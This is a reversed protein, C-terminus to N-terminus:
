SVSGVDRDTELKPDRGARRHAEDILIKLLIRGAEPTLEPVPTPLAVVIDPHDPQRTRPRGQETMGM